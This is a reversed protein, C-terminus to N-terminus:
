KNPAWISYSSLGGLLPGVLAILAHLVWEWLPAAQLNNNGIYPAMLMLALPERGGVRMECIRAM